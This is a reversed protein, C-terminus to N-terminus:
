DRNNTKKKPASSQGKKLVLFDEDEAIDTAFDAKETIDTTDAANANEKVNVSYATKDAKELDFLFAGEKPLIMEAQGSSTNKSEESAWSSTEEKKKKKNKKLFATEEETLYVDYEAKNKALPRQLGAFRAQKVSDAEMKDMLSDNLGWERIRDQYAIECRAVFKARALAEKKRLKEIYKNSYLLQALSMMQKKDIRVGTLNVGQLVFADLDMENFNIKSLDLLRIDLLRLEEKPIHRIDIRGNEIQAVLWGAFELYQRDKEDMVTDTLNTERVFAGHVDADTLDAKSLDASELYAFSLDAGTLDAGSLNAGTLNAYSLNVGKLCGDKLNAGKLNLGHLDWGSVDEGKHFANMFAVANEDSQWTDAQSPLLAEEEEPVGALPLRFFAEEDRLPLLPEKLAPRAMKEKENTM